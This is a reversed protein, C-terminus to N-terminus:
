SDHGRMAVNLRDERGMKVRADAWEGDVHNQEFKRYAELEFDIKEAQNPHEEADIQVFVHLGYSKQLNQELRPYVAAIPLAGCCKQRDLRLGRGGVRSFSQRGRPSFGRSRTRNVFARDWSVPTLLLTITEHFFPSRHGKEGEDRLVTNEFLFELKRGLM